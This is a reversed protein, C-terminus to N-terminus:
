FMRNELLGTKRIAESIMYISLLIVISAVGLEFDNMEKVIETIEEIRNISWESFGLLIPIGFEVFAISIIGLWALNQGKAVWEELETDQEVMGSSYLLFVFVTLSAFTATPYSLQTGYLIVGSLTILVGMVFAMTRGVGKKLANGLHYGTSFGIFLMILILKTSQIDNVSDTQTLGRGAVLIFVIFLVGALFAQANKFWRAADNDSLMM